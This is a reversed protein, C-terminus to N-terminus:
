GRGTLAEHEALGRVHQLVRLHIRHILADGWLQWYTEPFLALDYWTHGELRTHQADLPILRFEGRRSQMTGVLHPANVHAYFSWEHMPPPQSAVDFALRHPPEWATIPEVFAGTSFECHRVAGVGSGEIRARVPYAIGGRFYWEEPPPLETFGLVHNWVVAAPAAVDIVTTVEHLHPQAQEAAALLPLAILIIAAHMGGRPQLRAITRGLLGGLTALPFAVPVAMALCFVGELAFLLLAGGTTFLAVLAISTTLQVSERGRRNTLFGSISGLAVPTAMFLALGYTNLAYVSWGVMAIAAAAPIFIADLHWRLHTLGPTPHEKEDTPKTLRPRSPAACLALMTLYNLGPLLFLFGIWPSWGADMARRVSMSLGIWVFPLAWLGLVLLLPSGDSGLRGVHAFLSPNLYDVPRWLIGRAMWIILADVLYKAAMLGFGSAAYFGPPVPERLSFWRRLVARVHTM